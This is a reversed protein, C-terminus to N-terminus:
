KRWFGAGISYEPIRTVAHLRERPTSPLIAISSCVRHYPNAYMVLSDLTSEHELLLRDDRSGAM